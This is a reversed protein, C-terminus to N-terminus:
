QGDNDLDRDTGQASAAPALLLLSLLLGTRVTSAAM